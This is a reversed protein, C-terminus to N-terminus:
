RLSRVNCVYHLRTTTKTGLGEWTSLTGIGVCTIKIVVCCTLYAQQQVSCHSCHNPNQTDSADVYQIM